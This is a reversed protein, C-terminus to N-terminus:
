WCSPGTLREKVKWEDQEAKEVLAKTKAVEVEDWDLKPKMISPEPILTTLAPGM